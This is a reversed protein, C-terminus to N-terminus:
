YNCSYELPSLKELLGITKLSNYFLTKDHCCVSISNYDIYKEIDYCDDPIEVLKPGQDDFTCGYRRLQNVLKVCENKREYNLSNIENVLERFSEKVHKIEILKPQMIELKIQDGMYAMQEIANRITHYTPASCGKNFRIMFKLCSPVKKPVLKYMSQCSGIPGVAGTAGTPGTSGTAGTAKTSGMVGVMSSSGYISTYETGSVYKCDESWKMTIENEKELLIEMISYYIFFGKLINIFLCREQWM